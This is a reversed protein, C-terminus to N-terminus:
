ERGLLRRVESESYAPKQGQEELEIIRPGRNERQSKLASSNARTKFVDGSDRFKQQDASSARDSFPSSSTAFSRDGYSPVDDAGSFSQRSLRSSESARSFERTAFQDTSFSKIGNYDRASHKQRSFWGASGKKGLTAQRDKDFSSRDNPNQMRKLSEDIRRKMPKDVPTDRPLTSRRSTCAPLSFLLIIPLLLFLRKM